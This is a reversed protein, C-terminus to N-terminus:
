IARGYWAVRAEISLQKVDPRAITESPYRENDSILMLGGFALRQVRKVLVLDDVVLVYIKGNVVDGFGRDVLMLDGDEITPSMSDGQAVVFEAKDPAVGLSRLMGRRFGLAPAEEEGHVTLVGPGASARVALRPVSVYGEGGDDTVLDPRRDYGTAVWDLTVGARQALALAATLPMRTKENMWEYIANRSVAAIESAKTPGGVMRVLQKFREGESAGSAGIAVPLGPSEDGAM